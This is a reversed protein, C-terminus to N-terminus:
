VRVFEETEDAVTADLRGGLHLAVQFVSQSEEVFVPSAKQAGVFQPRSQLRVSFREFVIVDSFQHPHSVDSPGSPDIVDTITYQEISQHRIPVRLCQSSLLRIM